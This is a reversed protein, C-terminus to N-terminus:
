SYRKEKEERQEDIGHQKWQTTGAIPWPPRWNWLLQYWLLILTFIDAILNSIWFNLPTMLKLLHCILIFDDQGM